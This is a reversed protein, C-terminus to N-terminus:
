TQAKGTEAAPEEEAAFNIEEIAKRNSSVAMFEVTFAALNVGTALLVFALHIWWGGVQRLAIEAGPGAGRGPILRSHVEAGLLAAVIILLIAFCAWPFVRKKLRRTLPIYKKAQDEDGEVAERIDMGTGILYFIILVHTFLILIAALMGALLHHSISAADGLGLGLIFAYGLAAADLLILTFLIQPM